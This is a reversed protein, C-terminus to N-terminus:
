DGRNDMRPCVIMMPSIQGSAILEDAVSKVDLEDIISENGSRGHLFYLVPLRLEGNDYEDPVYISFAMQKDLVESHMDIYQVKSM